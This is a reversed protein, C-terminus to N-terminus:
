RIVILHLNSGGMPCMPSPPLLLRRRPFAGVKLWLPGSSSLLVSGTGPAGHAAWFSGLVRKASQPCGLTGQSEDLRTCALAMPCWQIPGRGGTREQLLLSCFLPKINGTGSTGM